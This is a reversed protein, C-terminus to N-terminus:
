AKELEVNIESREDDAVSVTVEKEIYGPKNIVVQYVRFIL